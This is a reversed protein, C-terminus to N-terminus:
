TGGPGAELPLWLRGKQPLSEHAIEHALLQDNAFIMRGGNAPLGSSRAILDERATDDVPLPAVYPSIDITKVNSFRWREDTPVPMPISQFKEWAARQSESAPGADLLRATTELNPTAEIELVAPTM